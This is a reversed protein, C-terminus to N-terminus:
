KNGYYVPETKVQIGFPGFYLKSVTNKCFFRKLAFKMNDYSVDTVDAM